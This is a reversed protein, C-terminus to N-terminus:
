VAEGFIGLPVTLPHHIDLEKKENKWVFLIFFQKRDPIKSWQIQM